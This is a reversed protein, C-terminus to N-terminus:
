SLIPCTQSLTDHTELHSLSSLTRTSTGQRPPGAVGDRAGGRVRGRIKRGLPEWEGDPMRGEWPSLMINLSRASGPVNRRGSFLTDPLVQEPQGPIFTSRLPTEGGPPCRTFASPGQQWWALVQFGAGRSIPSAYTKQQMFHSLSSSRPTREAALTKTETHVPPCRFGLTRRTKPLYLYRIGDTMDALIFVRSILVSLTWGMDEVVLKISRSGGGAALVTGLSTNVRRTLGQYLNAEM